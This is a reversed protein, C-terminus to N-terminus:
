LAAKLATAFEAAIDDATLEGAVIAAEIEGRPLSEDEKRGYWLLDGVLDRVTGLIVDRRESM